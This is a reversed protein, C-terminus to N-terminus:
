FFYNRKYFGQEASKGLQFEGDIVYNYLSVPCTNYPCIYSFSIISFRVAVTSYREKLHCIPFYIKDAIIESVGRKYRSLTGSKKVKFFFPKLYYRLGGKKLM